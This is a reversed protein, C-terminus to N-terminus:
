AYLLELTCTITRISNQASAVTMAVTVDIVNDVDPTIATPTDLNLDVFSRQGLLGSVFRADGAGVVKGSARATITTSLQFGSTSVSALLASASGSILTTGNLKIKFTATGPVLGTSLTGRLILRATNGSTLFFGAPIVRDGVGPPVLSVENTTNAVTADAVGMFAARFWTRVNEFYPM